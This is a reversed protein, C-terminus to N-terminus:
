NATPVKEVKEVILMTLPAKTQVLRLGLQTQLANFISLGPDTMVPSHYVDIEDPPPDTRPIGAGEMAWSLTFDYEARLGTRDFVARNLQSSLRDALQQMTERRAWHKYLVGDTGGTVTEYTRPVKSGAALTPFGDQGRNLKPLDKRALTGDNATTLAPANPDVPPSEQFKPGNRAVELALVPLVRSEQHAVMGFRTALLSQLMVGVQAPTAGSPIRAVIEYRESEMWAPGSIQYGKLNYARMLIQKLSATGSLQGPSSTGPGGRLPGLGRHGPEAPKVSAVEFAPPQALAASVALTCLVAACRKM